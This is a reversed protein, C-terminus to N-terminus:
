LTLGISLYSFDSKRLASFLKSSLNNWVTSIQFLIINYQHVSNTKEEKRGWLLRFFNLITWLSFIHNEIILCKELMLFMSDRESFFVMQRQLWIIQHFMQFIWGYLAFIKTLKVCNQNTNETIKAHRNGSLHLMVHNDACHNICLPGYFVSCRSNMAVTIFIVQFFNNCEM